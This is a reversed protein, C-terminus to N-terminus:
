STSELPLAHVSRKKVLRGNVGGNALANCFVVQWDDLLHLIGDGLM